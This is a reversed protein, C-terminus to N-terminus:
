STFTIADSVIVQGTTPMALALYWTDAGSEGITITLQASTDTVFEFVKDATHEVLILQGTGVAVDNDPATDAVDVGDSDDSLWGKLQYTGTIPQANAGNLQVSVIIATGAEDGVSITAGYPQASQNYNGVHLTKSYLNDINGRHQTM